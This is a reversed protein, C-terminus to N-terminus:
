QFIKDNTKVLNKKYHFDINNATNRCLDWIQSFKRQQSIPWILRLWDSQLIKQDIMDRSCILSIAQTKAHRYLNVYILLEDFFTQTPM